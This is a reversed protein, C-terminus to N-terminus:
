TFLVIFAEVTVQKMMIDYNSLAQLNKNQKFVTDTLFVLLRWLIMANDTNPYEGLFIRIISKTVWLQKQISESHVVNLEVLWNARSRHPTVFMPWSPASSCCIVFPVYKWLPLVLCIVHKDHTTTIKKEISFTSFQALQLVNQAIIQIFAIM